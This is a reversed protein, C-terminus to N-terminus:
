NSLLIVACRSRNTSACTPTGRMSTLVHVSLMVLGTISLTWTKVDIRPVGVHALVFLDRQATIKSLLQHPLLPVRRFTRPPDMTVAAQARREQGAVEAM